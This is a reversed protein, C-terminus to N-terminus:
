YRLQAFILEMVLKWAGEELTKISFARTEYLNVNFDFKTFIEM